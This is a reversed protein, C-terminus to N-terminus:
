EIEKFTGSFTIDWRDNREKEYFFSDGGKLIVAVAYKSARMMRITLLLGGNHVIIMSMNAMFMVDAFLKDAVTVGFRYMWDHICCAKRIDVGYITDPVLKGSFDLDSGCGNCNKERQEESSNWYEKPAYLKM